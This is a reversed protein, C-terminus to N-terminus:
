EGSAEPLLGLQTMLGLTDSYRWVRRVKGAEVELLTCNEVEFPRGSAPRGYFEGDNTGRLRYRLTVVGGQEYLALKELVVDSTAAWWQELADAESDADTAAPQGHVFAEYGEHLLARYGAKDRGNDCEIVREVCQIPDLTESM